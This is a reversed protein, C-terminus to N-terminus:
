PPDRGAWYWGGPLGYKAKWAEPDLTEIPQFVVQPEAESARGAPDGIVAQAPPHLQLHLERAARLTLRTESACAAGSARRGADVIALLGTLTAEPAAAALARERRDLWAIRAKVEPQRALDSASSRNPRYGAAQYAAVQTMGRARARAFAEHGPNALRRAGPNAPTQATPLPEPSDAIQVGLDQSLRVIIAIHM